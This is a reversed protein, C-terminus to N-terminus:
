FDFRILSTAELRKAGIECYKEEIEIGIARRRLRKAAILTTGSGMFPDYILNAKFDTLISEMLIVPKQTPHKRRAKGDANLYAGHMIRYIKGFKNRSCWALEFPWGFLKDSSGTISRKDWVIWGGGQPLFHCYNNAGFLIMECHLKYLFRPDFSKNDNTIKSHQIRGCNKYQRTNIQLGYPPDTLILDPSKLESLVERCDGHYIIINKDDYYKKM